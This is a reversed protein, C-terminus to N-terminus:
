KREIKTKLIYNKQKTNKDKEPKLKFMNPLQKCKCSCIM